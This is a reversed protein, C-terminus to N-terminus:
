TVRGAEVASAIQGLQQRVQDRFWVEAPQLSKSEPWVMTFDFAETLEPLLPEVALGKVGMLLHSELDPLVTVNETGVILREIGDANPLQVVCTRALGLEELKADIKKHGGTGLPVNVHPREAFDCIDLIEASNNSRVMVGRCQMLVERAFGKVKLPHYGLSVSVAEYGDERVGVDQMSLSIVVEPAVAIISNLVSSILSVTVGSGVGIHFREHCSTPVFDGKGRVAAEILDLAPGIFHSIEIAKPTPQVGPGSRVFLPDQFVMRLRGLSSSISPQGVRLKQACRTVNRERMLTAFIVLLNLDMSHLDDVM